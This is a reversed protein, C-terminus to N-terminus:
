LVSNVVPVACVDGGADGGHLDVSFTDTVHQTWTHMRILEKM